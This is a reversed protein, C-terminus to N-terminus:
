AVQHEPQQNGSMHAGPVPFAQHGESVLQALMEMIHRRNEERMSYKESVLTLLGKNANYRVGFLYLGVALLACSRTLSALHLHACSVSRVKLNDNGSAFCHPLSVLWHTSVFLFNWSVTTTGGPGM